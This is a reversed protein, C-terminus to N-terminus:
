RKYQFAIGPSRGLTNHYGVGFLINFNDSAVVELGGTFESLTTNGGVQLSFREHLIYDLAFILELPEEIVKRFSTYMNLKPNPRYVMGLEFVSPLPQNETFQIEGPSYIHVGISLYQNVTSQAGIEVTYNNTNGFGDISYSLWNFQAAISLHKHLKRAYSVGVNQERLAENGVNLISLGIAGKAFPFAVGGSFRNLDSLSFRQIANISAVFGEVEVLGAQNGFLADVGILNARAGGLNMSAVSMYDTNNQGQADFIGLLMLLGIFLIQKM